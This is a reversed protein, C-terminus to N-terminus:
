RGDSLEKHWIRAVETYGELYRRWGPRGECIIAGCGNHVAWEEIRHLFSRMNMQLMQYGATGILRCVLMKPLPQLTTLQILYIEDHGPSYALWIQIEGRKAQGILDEVDATGRLEPILKALLPRAVAEVREVGEQPILV